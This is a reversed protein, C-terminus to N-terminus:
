LDIRQEVPLFLRDGQSVLFTSYFEPINRVVQNTRFESPAHTNAALSAAAFQPTQKMRWCRAWSLFLTRFDPTNASRQAARRYAAVAVQLGILDAMNESVTLRGDVHQAADFGEPVLANYQDVLQRTKADFAAHDDPVWWDRLNGDGDFKSGQDDFGHGIEHGIIAGIAGYNTAPDADKDFFPSQLFAAPFVIQNSSPSYFANVTQPTTTWEGEDVGAALRAFEKQRTSDRIAILSEILRGPKVTVSSYDSRHEAYGIMATIKDLKAVAAARTTQSMWSSDLFRDRYAEQLDDVMQCVQDKAAASFHRAVYLKGLPHGLEANVTAVARQWPQTPQNTGGMFKRRFEFNATSVDEYLFRSFGQILSLRLYDRWQALDLEGWLQGVDALFGPQRVVVFEFLEPSQSTRGSRWADFDFEPALAHLDVWSVRNNTADADQTQVAGWHAAAIRQELAFVSNSMTIPDAYGAATALRRLYNRYADRHAGFQPKQYYHREMGLGSQDLTAVYRLSDHPDIDVYIAILGPIPLRGMVTALESKNAATDIASFLDALPSMGLREVAVSDMCCAYLDRIQQEPSGPRADRIGEIIERLQREVRELVESIASCVPQNSPLRYDRLWKGNVYRYLDDQPRISDDIGTLDTGTARRTPAASAAPIAALALPGAM